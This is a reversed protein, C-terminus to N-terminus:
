MIGKRRFHYDADHATMAFPRSGVLEFGKQKLWKIVECAMPAAKNYEVHQLELILHDVQQLFGQNMGQLIKLEAGQVDMKILNPVPLLNMDVIDSLRAAYKTVKNDENFFLRTEPVIIENQEFLSNGGPHELNQWFDVYGTINSLVGSHFYRLHRENKFAEDYLFKVENMADFCYFNAEPWVEHAKKTWHMVCSGIDYIVRPNIKGYDRMYELHRVHEAPLLDQAALERFRQEVPDVIIAPALAPLVVPKPVTYYRKGIHTLKIDLDAWIDGGDNANMCFDFDESVTDNHDLAVNYEFQPYGLEELIHTKVLVCGFGIAGVQILGKKDKLDDLLFRNGNDHWLELISDDTKQVYVGGIVAKDAEIFRQLTNPPMIIDSDVFLVYDFQNNIAYEAIKNRVQDIRYGYFYELYTEVEDPIIMDYIAKFTEPEIDKRTPLAILVRKPHRAELTTIEGVETPVYPVAAATKYVLPAIAQTNMKQEESNVKYDNIPNLDNYLYHIEPCVHIQEPGECEEILAYFLAADGGAKYYYQKNNDLLKTKDIKGVLNRTFVRLHTYPIGWTLKYERYHKNEIVEPPYAEAILPIRDAMSWCSGYSFQVPTTSFLNNYYTFINPNNPLADDGDILMILGKTDHCYEVIMNYQNALAGNRHGKEILFKSKIGIPLSDIYKKLLVDGDDTSGDDVFLALYNDYNQAAISEACKVIYDKANYFPVIVHITKEFNQKPVIVQEPNTFRPKLISSVASNIQEVKRTEEVTLYKGLKNFFHQKWQLAVTDWTAIPKVKNCANTKQQWLYQNDIAQKTMHVFRSKQHDENINPFLVNPGIAYDLLYSCEKLAIQELAGFRNTIVPTNYYLSELTSIGFTEPFLAPYLTFSSTALINAVEKQKLIGHFKVGNKGDHKEKLAKWKKEQEDPEGMSYYGGIIDLHGHANTHNYIDLWIDELLIEMGKSVSANYVFSYSPIKNEINVFGVDQPVMGNRTQFIKDKLVEFNRRNGHTCNAIYSTHFDSLTFIEDIQGKVIMDELFEDGKCFTDHMWLVKYAKNRQEKNVYQFPFTARSSVIIDFGNQDIVSQNSYPIYQVNGYIGQSTNWNHNNCNNMVTVDFGIKTLEKAMCIVATESGGLGRHALTTGDYALGLSDIILIKM